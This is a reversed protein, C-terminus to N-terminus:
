ATGYVEAMDKELEERVAEEDAVDLVCVDGGERHKVVLVDEIAEEADVFHAEEESCVSVLTVEVDGITKTGARRYYIAGHAKITVTGHLKILERRLERSRNEGPEFIPGGAIWKQIKADIDARAKEIM